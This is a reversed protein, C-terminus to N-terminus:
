QIYYNPQQCLCIPMVLNGKGWYQRSRMCNQSKTVKNWTSTRSHKHTISFFNREVRESWFHKYQDGTNPIVSQLDNGINCFFNNMYESIDKSDSTSHGNIVLKNINNLKKKKSPNIIPGINKWLNHSSRTDEFLNQYYKNEAERICVRLMNKYRNYKSKTQEDGSRIYLKYLKHNNKKHKKKWDRRLGNSTEWEQVPFHWLQFRSKTFVNSLLYSLDRFTQVPYIYRSDYSEMLEKFKRWNKDGFLRVKPRNANDVCLNCKLSVFCPLHDTIDCYFMGSLTNTPQLRSNKAFRIFIHDIFTASYETIRSPLTIYPLYGYSMLTSVYELTIENEIKIIDINLDGTLITTVDNDINELSRDLDKVFNSSNGNPHRYIGSVIFSANNHTFRVFLSGTECKVCHCSKTISLHEDIYVNEMKESIYIGVGGYFNVDPTVYFFVYGAFLHEVTSINRSGIETLVIIDFENGLVNIFCRLEGSHKPLCRINM